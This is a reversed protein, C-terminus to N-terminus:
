EVNALWAELGLMLWVGEAPGGADLSALLRRIARPDFYAAVRAGPGLLAADVARRSQSGPALWARVPPVFGQKPRVAFSPPFWRGLLERLIRKGDFTRGGADLGALLEDPVTAALEVVNRDVLPTRVELGHTMAAIDVKTLIAGPLLTAYDFARAGLLAPLDRTREWARAAPLAARELARAHERRWLGRRAPSRLVMMARDEWAPARALPRLLGRLFRALRATGTAAAGGGRLARAYRPYGAFAEDGGDGSLVMAVHERALAALPLV